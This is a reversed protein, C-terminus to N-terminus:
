FVRGFQISLSFFELMFRDRRIHGLIDHLSPLGLTPGLLIQGGLNAFFWLNDVVILGAATDRIVNDQALYLTSDPDLQPTLLKSLRSGWGTLLLGSPPLAVSLSIVKTM